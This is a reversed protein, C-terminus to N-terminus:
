SAEQRCPRDAWCARARGERKARYLGRDAEDLLAAIGAAPDMSTLPARPGRVPLWTALGVSVTVTTATPSDAHELAMAQVEQLVLQAMHEAGADDTDPLLLAFEEGGFRGALDAPRRCLQKLVGAVAQLCRDGEPHGYHDNFRKFHDVDLMVLSLPQGSRHARRWERELAQDLRMRNFLGPTIVQGLALKRGFTSLYDKLAILKERNPPEHLRYVVPATKSKVRLQNEVRVAVLRPNVPKTIFDVAGADFGAVEFAEDKHSTVFIVPIHALEPTAELARCVEFGSMEPMEADLLILDPVVEAAVRLADPGNTAVSLSANGGLIRALVHIAGSDDDVLLIRPTAM